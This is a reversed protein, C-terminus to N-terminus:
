RFGRRREVMLIASNHQVENGRDGFLNGVFEGQLDAVVYQFGNEIVFNQGFFEGSSFLLVASAM